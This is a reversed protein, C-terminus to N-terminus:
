SFRPARGWAPTPLRAGPRRAARPPAEAALPQTAHVFRERFLFGQVLDFGAQVALRQHEPTEVGELVSRKGSQRAYSLLAALLAPDHGPDNQDWTTIWSRDFKLYAVRSVQPLSLFAGAAGIDDLALTIGRGALDRTVQDVVTAHTTDTNEILEVVVGPRPALVRELEDLRASLADSGAEALGCPDVNVFVLGDAPAHAIQLRKLTLEAVWLGGAGTGHLAQFVRDPPIQRGQADQFRALAEYGVLGGDRAEILPQYEVGVRDIAYLERITHIWGPDQSRPRLVRLTSM